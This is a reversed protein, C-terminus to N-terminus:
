PRETASSEAQPHNQIEKVLWVFYRITYKLWFLSAFIALSLWFWGADGPPPMGLWYKLVGM